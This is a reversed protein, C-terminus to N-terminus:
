VTTTSGMIHKAIKYVSAKTLNELQTQPEKAGHLHVDFVRQQANCYYSLSLFFLTGTILLKANLM